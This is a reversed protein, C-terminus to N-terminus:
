RQVAEYCLWFGMATVLVASVIPLARVLRGEGWRSGAFSRFKVVLIGVLVLVGALGASFALLLPFALWFLNMGIALVLMAIADTCPVIGGSMGLVILGWMSVKAPVDLDHTHGHHHHHGGGIHVHDARGALRALLLYFGLCVIAVGMVLGLGTQINQRASASMESPLFLLGLAILLVVGTHTIATALGLVVAHGLTGREGVLYAAMLTKGHGPTLAHMAGIYAAILLLLGFGYDSQLFVQLLGAEQEGHTASASSSTEAVIPVAQASPLTFHLEITRLKADDGPLRENAARKQVVADPEVRSVVHLNAENTLSLSIAGEQEQYNSERFWFTSEKDSPCTLVARFVFDCRLHDLAMGKEDKLTQSRETCIFEVPMGNHKAILRDALIPAYLRTFENFYDLHNPFRTIAIEDQFPRMDELIVTAPDVELRYDVRVVIENAEKGPRFRVAITRDHNSKLVPHADASSPFLCLFVSLSVLLCPPLSANPLETDGHRRTEKDQLRSTV